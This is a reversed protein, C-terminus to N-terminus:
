VSAEALELHPAPRQFADWNAFLPEVETNSPTRHAYAITQWLKTLSSLYNFREAALPPKALKLIDGETHSAHIELQEQQTLGVLAGRYLLSLAERAHGQQWLQRATGAIDEPLSEPRIDLGFLVDPAVHAKPQKRSPKLLNIIKQRYILAFIIAVIAAIWLLTKLISAILQIVSESFQNENKEREEEKNKAQWSSVKRRNNFEELSMVENIKVQAQEASLREKALIENKSEPYQAYALTTTGLGLGSTILILILSPLLTSSGKALSSLREGLNRFAIEIDWAELQTRRNIYLMFGAAVYFPEILLIATLNFIFDLLTFWYEEDMNVNGRFISKVHEWFQSTPDLMFILSYLSFVIIIQLLKCGITLWIANSHGQLYILAQRAKREKGHLGELQWIPLNYSRSFSFRRYSLASLLGTNRILKPLASFAEATTIPENFLQRSIIHLLLRDLLPNFWWVVLSALWLYNEPLILWVPIAILVVLLFHPLMLKFWHQQVFSFGLDIAEWASRQRVQISLDTLKM